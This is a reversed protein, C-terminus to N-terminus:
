VHKVAIEISTRSILFSGVNNSKLREVIERKFGDRSRFVSCAATGALNELGARNRITVTAGKVAPLQRHKFDSMLRTVTERSVGIMEGIEEHTLAIQFHDQGGAM